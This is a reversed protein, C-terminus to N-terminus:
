GPRHNQAPAAFWLRFEAALPISGRFLDRCAQQYHLYTAYDDLRSWAVGLSPGGLSVARELFVNDIPIHAFPYLSAFGQLRGEGLAFVYKMSMNLWKQAQGVSFRDCGHDRYLTQLQACATEYWQDFERQSKITTKPLEKL